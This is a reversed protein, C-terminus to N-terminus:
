PIVLVKGRAHGDDVHRLAAVVEDLPFRRDIAPRVRGDAIMQSVTAMDGRDFPKWWLMLGSLRDSALSILTGAIMAAFIPSAPVALRSM